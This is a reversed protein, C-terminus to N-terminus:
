LEMALATAEFYEKAAKAEAFILELEAPPDTTAVAWEVRSRPWIKELRLQGHKKGWACKLRAQLMVLALPRLEDPFPQSM